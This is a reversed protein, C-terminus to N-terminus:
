NKSASIQRHFNKPQEYLYIVVLPIFESLQYKPM